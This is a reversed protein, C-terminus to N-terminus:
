SCLSPFSLAHKPSHSCILKALTGHCPAKLRSLQDRALHKYFMSLLTSEESIVVLM